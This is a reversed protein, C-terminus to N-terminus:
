SEVDSMLHGLRVEDSWAQGRRVDGSRAQGRRVEGSWAQSRRVVGSRLIVESTKMHGQQVESPWM